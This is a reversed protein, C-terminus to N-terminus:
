SNKERVSLKHAILNCSQYDLIEPPTPPKRQKLINGTQRKIEVDKPELESNAAQLRQQFENQLESPYKMQILLGKEKSTGCVSTSEYIIQYFAGRFCLRDSRNESECQLLGDQTKLCWRRPRSTAETAQELVWCDSM